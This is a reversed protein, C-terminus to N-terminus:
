RLIFLKLFLEVRHHNNIIDIEEIDLAKFHRLPIHKSHEPAFLLRLENKIKLTYDNTANLEVEDSDVYSPKGTALLGEILLM